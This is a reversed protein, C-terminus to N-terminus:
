PRRAPGAREHREERRDEDRLGPEEQPGLDDRERRRRRHDRDELAVPERRRAGVDDDQGEDLEDPRVTVAEREHSRSHREGVEDGLGHPAGEPAAPGPEADLRGVRSGSADGEEERDLEGDREQVRVEVLPREIRHEDEEAGASVPARAADVHPDDLELRRERGPERRREGDDEELERDDGGEHAEGQRDGLLPRPELVGGEREEEEPARGGVQPVEGERREPERQRRGVTERGERASEPGRSVTSPEGGEDRRRHEGEDGRARRERVLEIRVRLVDRAGPEAERVEEAVVLGDREEVARRGPPLEEVVEAGAVVEDERAVPLRWEGVDAAVGLEIRPLEEHVVVVHDRASLRVSRREGAVPDRVREEVVADLDVLRRGLRRAVEAGATSKGAGM